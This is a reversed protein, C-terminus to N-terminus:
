RESVILWERTTFVAPLAGAKKFNFELKSRLQILCGISINPTTLEGCRRSIRTLIYTRPYACHCLSEGLPYLCLLETVGRSALEKM